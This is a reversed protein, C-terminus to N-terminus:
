NPARFVIVAPTISSTARGTSKLEGTKRNVEFQVLTDGKQNAVLLWKGSPDIAFSRPFNVGQTAFGILALSATAPDIRYGVISNHNRNSAYLFKGSPHVAIEAASHPGAYDGPETSIVQLQAGIHGNITDYAFTAVSANLECLVYLVRGNPAFALHRPGVGPATSAVSVRVLGNNSVRFIQVKDIGLDATAVFRGAPDFVVCHPHPTEQGHNPGSGTDKIQGGVAGLRGDVEISLVVFDGGGYNGVVLHSGKPDIALHAPIPSNLAVRNLLTVIGSKPNISYAEVSGSNRGEYSNVENIVYLFRRSADLAAFSPNSSKVQQVPLLAATVPDFRFVSLGMSNNRGGGPPDRTYSGVYVFTPEVGAVAALGATPLM